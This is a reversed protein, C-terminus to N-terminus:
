SRLSVGEAGDLALEPPYGDRWTMKALITGAGLVLGKETITM